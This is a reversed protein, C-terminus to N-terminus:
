GMKKFLLVFFLLIAMAGVTNALDSIAQAIKLLADIESM